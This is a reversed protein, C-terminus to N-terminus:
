TLFPSLHSQMCHKDSSSIVQVQSHVIAQVLRQFLVMPPLQLQDWLAMSQSSWLYVVGSTNASVIISVAEFRTSNTCILLLVDSFTALLNWLVHSALYGQGSRTICSLPLSNVPCSNWPINYLKPILGDSCCNFVWLWICNALLHM